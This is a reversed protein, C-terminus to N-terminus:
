RGETGSGILLRDSTAENLEISDTANYNMPVYSLEDKTTFVTALSATSAGSM